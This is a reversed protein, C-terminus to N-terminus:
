TMSRGARHRELWVIDRGFSYLVSLVAAAACLVGIPAVAVAVPTGAALLLIGQAAAIVRRSLSSPLPRRWAPRFVRVLHFLYYMVGPILCWPGWVPVLGVSLILIFLADVTEDYLGGARTTGTRRAINGDVGDLALAVAGPLVAIWPFEPGDDARVILATFVVILGLRLTTLDDAATWTERRLLSRTAGLAAVAICLVAHIPHDSLWWSSILASALLPVSLVMRRGLGKYRDAM